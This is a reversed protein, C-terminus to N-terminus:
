GFLCEALCLAFTFEQFKLDPTLGNFCILLNEFLSKILYFWFAFKKLFYIEFLLTKWQLLNWFTFKKFFFIWFAFNKISIFKLFYFSVWFYFEFLLSKWQLWSQEIFSQKSKKLTFFFHPPINPIKLIKFKQSYKFFDVKRLSLSTM